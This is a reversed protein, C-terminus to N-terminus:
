GQKVSRVWLPVRSSDHGHISREEHVENAGKGDRGDSQDRTAAPGGIGETVVVVVAMFALEADLALALKAAIVAISGGALLARSASTIGDLAIAVGVAGAGCALFALVVAADGHTLLLKWGDVVRRGGGRASQFRDVEGEIRFLEIRARAIQDGGVHSANPVPIDLANM